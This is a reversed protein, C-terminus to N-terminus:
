PEGLAARRSIREPRLTEFYHPHMIENAGDPLTVLVNGGVTHGRYIVETGVQIERGSDTRGPRDSTMKIM